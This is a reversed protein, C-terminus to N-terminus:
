EKEDTGSYDVSYIVAPNIEKVKEYFEDYYKKDIVIVAFSEDNFQAVLKGSKKVLVLALIDDVQHKVSVYGMRVKLTKGKFIYRSFFAIALVTGDLLLCIVGLVIYSIKKAILEADLASVINFYVGLGSILFIVALMIFVAISHKYYFSKMIEGSINYYLVSLFDLPFLFTKTYKFHKIDRAL